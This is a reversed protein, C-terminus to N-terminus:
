SFEIITVELNLRTSRAPLSLALTVSFLPILSYSPAFMLLLKNAKPFQMFESLSGLLFYTNMGYRSLLSVLIIFSESPPFVFDIIIAQM